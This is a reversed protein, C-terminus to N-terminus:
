EWRSAPSPPSPRWRSARRRTNSRAPASYREISSWPAVLHIGSLLPPIWPASPTSSESKDPDIVVVLAALIILIGFTAFGLSFIRLLGAAPRGATTSGSRALMLFFAILLLLGGFILKGM